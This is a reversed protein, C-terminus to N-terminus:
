SWLFHLHNQICTYHCAIVGFVVQRYTVMNKKLCTHIHPSLMLKAGDTGPQDLPGSSQAVIGFWLGNGGDRRRGVRADREASEPAAVFGEHLTGGGPRGWPTSEIGAVRLASNKWTFPATHPLNQTVLADGQSDGAAGPQPRQPRHCHHREARSPEARRATM